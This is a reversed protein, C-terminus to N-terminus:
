GAASAELPPRDALRNHAKRRTANPNAESNAKRSISVATRRDRAARGLSMSVRRRKSRRLVSPRGMVRMSKTRM